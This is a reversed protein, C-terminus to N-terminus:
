TELAVLKFSAPADCLPHITPEDRIGVILQRKRDPRMEWGEPAAGCSNEAVSRAPPKLKLDV